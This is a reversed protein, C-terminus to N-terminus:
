KYIGRINDVAFNPYQRVDVNSSSFYITYFTQKGAELPVGIQTYNGGLKTVQSDDTYFQAEVYWPSTVTNTGINSVTGRVVLRANSGDLYTTDVVFALHQIETDSSSGVTADTTNECSTFFFPIIFLLFFLKKM